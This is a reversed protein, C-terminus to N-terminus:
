KEPLKDVKDLRRMMQNSRTGILNKLENDALRIKDRAKTLTEAFKTFESKVEALIGWVESTRKEIALTRFGVQLSSLVATLTTPGTIIVKASNKIEEFLGPIRLCEAYLGEFPLFMIAFDTTHPPSIYKGSIDRAFSKIKNSINRVFLEIATKDGADYAKLLSEYDESPFKSDIPLYVPMGSDTKGPLKVAFEVFRSSGPVVQANAEYQDPTLLNDIINALQYEGIIGRTKVNSLVKKLDGVGSALVQMEGLGKQVEELNRSVMTFSQALRKDLAKGLKQDVTERMKDLQIGNDEMMSKISAEMSLRIKDMSNDTSERFERQSNLVANFSERQSQLFNNIENGIKEKFADFIERQEKRNVRFIDELKGRLEDQKEGTLEMIGALKQETSAKLKDTIETYMNLHRAQKEQLESNRQIIDSSFVKFNGALEERSDRASRSAEERSRLFNDELASGLRKLEENLLIGPKRIKSYIIILLILSAALLVAIIILLIDTM